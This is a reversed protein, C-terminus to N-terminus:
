GAVKLWKGDPTEKYHQGSGLGMKMGCHRKACPLCFTGWQGSCTRVDFLDGKCPNDCHNCVTDGTWYKAVKMAPTNTLQAM